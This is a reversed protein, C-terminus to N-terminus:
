EGARLLELLEASPHGDEPLRRARQFARIAARSQNGIIGDIGGVSLGRAQLRRQLEERELRVLGRDSAPWPTALPAEGRIRDALHGVAVAYLVARNYSLIAEFNDSTLFAPGRAGAPLSLSWSGAATPWSAGPPPSLGAARWTPISRGPGPASLAFDFNPEVAVEIAWPQGTIWGANALYNATSALADPVSGWIDRRGDGDFDFAHANYSSPIFQTHGMAGAWSGTMRLLPVDGREIIRLAELLENRWFQPRRPERWALTALSRPVHRAGLSAGFTTEVGWIALVVHRDVGFSAEIRRLLDDHEKLMQRGATIREESVLASVYEGASRGHEPQSLAHDLVEHDPLASGLAADFTAASIGRALAEPRLERVFARFTDVAPMSPPEARLMSASIALVAVVLGLLRANAM